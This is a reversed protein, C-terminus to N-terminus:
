DLRIKGVDRWIATPNWMGWVASVFVGSRTGHTVVWKGSHSRGAIDSFGDNNFDGIQVDQWVVTPSWSAVHRNQFGTSTQPVNSTLVYWINRETRGAVDSFGDNNFDGVTVDSWATTTTWSAVQEMLFGSGTGYGVAWTGTHARGIIDDKGDANFDGVLVDEWVVNPSWYTTRVVDRGESHPRSQLIVWQGTRARGAYDDKGDGNFDGAQIDIVGAVPHFEGQRVPTFTTGDSMAAWVSGSSARGIIDDYGNGDFDGVYVDTWTVTNAWKGNWEGRVFRNGRALWTSWFGEADRAALDQRGDGDFDGSKVDQWVTDTPMFGWYENVFSVGTSRAIYIRGDALVGYISDGPSPPPLPIGPGSVDFDVKLNLNAVVEVNTQEYYVADGDGYFRVTYTGNPVPLAYGGAANVHARYVHGDGSIAEVIGSGIGEGISYFDDDHPSGDSADRFVVGTILPDGNFDAFIQTVYAGNLVRLDDNFTGLRITAGLERFQENLLNERQGETSVFLKYHLDHVADELSITAPAEVGTREINEALLTFLYGADTVRMEPTTSGPAPTVHDFFSRDLMDLTHGHAVDFLIEHPALPQKADATIVNGGLGENLSIGFRAAEAEPNARARNILEVLLQDQATMSVGSLLTREELSEAARASDNSKRKRRPPPSFSDQLKHIMRQTSLLFSM